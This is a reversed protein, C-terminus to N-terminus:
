KKGPKGDSSEGGSEGADDKPPEQGTLAQQAVAAAPTADELKVGAAFLDAADEVKSCLDAAFVAKACHRIAQAASEAKVLRPLEDEPADLKRVRYIPM